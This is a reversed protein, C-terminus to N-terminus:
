AYMKIFIHAIIISLVLLSIWAIATSKADGIKSGYYSLVFTLGSGIFLIYSVWFVLMIQDDITQFWSIGPVGEQPEADLFRRRGTFARENNKKYQEATWKHKKELEAKYKQAILFTGSNSLVDLQSLTLDYVKLEADFAAQKPVIFAAMDNQAKLIAARQAEDPVLKNYESQKQSLDNQAMTIEIRKQEKAARPDPAQVQQARRTFLNDLWGM